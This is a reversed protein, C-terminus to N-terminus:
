GISPSAPPSEDEALRVEEKAGEPALRVNLIFCAGTAPPKVADITGNNGTVLHRVIALGLGTGNEKGSFFPEFIKPLDEEPIGPGDDTIRVQLNGEGAVRSEVLITGQGRCADRSNRFLNTFVQILQDRNFWILDHDPDLQLVNEMKPSQKLSRDGSEKLAASLSTPNRAPALRPKVLGLLDQVMNNLRDVEDIIYHSLKRIATGEDTTEEITQASGRIIFLPNRIEHALYSAMKGLNSLREQERIQRGQREITNFASKFHSFLIIFTLMTVVLVRKWISQITGVARMLIEHPNKHLELVGPIVGIQADAEEVVKRLDQSQLLSISPTVTDKTMRIPILIRLYSSSDNIISDSNVLSNWMWSLRSGKRTLEARDQGEKMAFSLLPDEGRVRGILDKRNSWIVEEHSWLVQVPYDQPRLFSSVQSDINQLRKEAAAADPPTDFDTILFRQEIDLHLAGALDITQLRTVTDILEDSFWYGFYLGMLILWILNLFVFRQILNFRIRM